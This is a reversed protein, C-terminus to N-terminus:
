GLDGGHRGMDPLAPGVVRSLDRSVEHGLLAPRRFPTTGWPGAARFDALHDASRLLTTASNVCLPNPTSPMNQPPQAAVTSRASCRTAPTSDALTDNTLSAANTRWSSRTLWAASASTM